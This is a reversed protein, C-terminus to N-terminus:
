VGNAVLVSSYANVTLERGYMKNPSFNDIIISAVVNTTNWFVLAGGVGANGERKDEGTSGFSGGDGGDEPDGSANLRGGAGGGGGGHMHGASENIVHVQMGTLRQWTNNSAGPLMEVNSRLYIANGGWGAGLAPALAYSRNINGSGKAGGSGPSELTGFTGNASGGNSATTRGLAWGASLGPSGAYLPGIYSGGEGSSYHLNLTNAYPPSGFDEYQYEVGDGSAVNQHLGQGGGGGGGPQITYHKGSSQQGGFGGIGGGGITNGSNKIIIKLDNIASPTFNNTNLDLLISPDSSAQIRYWRWHYSSQVYPPGVLGNPTTMLSSNSSQGMGQHVVHMYNPHAAGDLPSPWVWPFATIVDSARVHQAHTNSGINMGDPIELTVIMPADIPYPYISSRYEAFPDFPNGNASLTKSYTNSAQGYTDHEFDYQNATNGSSIGVFDDPFTITYYNGDENRRDRVGYHFTNDTAYSLADITIELPKFNLGGGGGSVRKGSIGANTSRGGARLKKNNTHPFVRYTHISSISLPTITLKMICQLGSPSMNM